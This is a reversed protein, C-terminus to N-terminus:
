LSEKFLSGRSGRGEDSADPQPIAVWEAAGLARRNFTVIDIVMIGGIGIVALLVGALVPAAIASASEALSLM